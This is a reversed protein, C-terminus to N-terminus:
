LRGIAYGMRPTEATPESAEREARHQHIFPSFLHALSKAIHSDLDLEGRMRKRCLAQWQIQAAQDSLDTLKRLEQVSSAGCLHVIIDPCLLSAAFQDAEVDAQAKEREKETGLPKDGTLHGLYIHGLEHALTWRIRPIPNTANYFIAYCGHIHQTFGDTGYRSAIDLLSRGTAHAYQPYTYVYIDHRKAILAPKVPLSSIGSQLLLEWASKTIKHRAM